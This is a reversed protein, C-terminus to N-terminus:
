KKLKALEEQPIIALKALDCFQLFWIRTADSKHKFTIISFCKFLKELLCFLRKTKRRRKAKGWLENYKGECKSLVKLKKAALGFLSAV